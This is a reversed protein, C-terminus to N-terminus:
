SRNGGFSRCSEERRYVVANWPGLSIPTGEAASVLGPAKEGAGGWQESFTDAIVAWTGDHLPSVVSAEQGSFNFFCAIDGTSLPMTVCLVPRDHRYTVDPRHREMEWPKLSSRLACLHKYFGFLLDHHEEFRLERNIRSRIFTEEAQPDAVDGGPDFAAFEEARGARVAEILSKDGHSVFYLFPAAEGYEEGMFLLPIFPSLMVATAAMKLRDPCVLGALREGLPRNGTQDHNQSFVVFQTPPRHKSHSGHKRRRYSSFQGTFVYGESFSKALNGISGFDMYYGNREGTLLTHLAHHFDDNWQAHLGIGECDQPTIVRIDNLDSEAILYATRNGDNASKVTEALEQLFTRASFDYIGHVADLRLADVHYQTFWELANEIFYHRVEDSMPGDFNIADGWPTRYRNTFYPGFKALYNGEPGLHNYIVDLIVAIGQEHCADIMEKLGAPGGYTNQPAFPFAGDYGWNRDGPFQGVPMVEIANIGLEKFYDLCGAVAHFTGELTFTGVHLEYITYEEVPIGQWGCDTWQFSSHDVIRSPGHVGRPQHRSAPDPFAEHEDIVYRYLDGDGASELRGEFYDPRSRVLPVTRRESGQGLEVSITGAFPAWVRFFTSGDSLPLAGIHTGASTDTPDNM